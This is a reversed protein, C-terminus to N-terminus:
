EYILTIILQRIIYFVRSYEISLIEQSVINKLDYKNFFDCFYYIFCEQIENYFPQSKENILKFTTDQNQFNNELYSHRFHIYLDDLFKTIFYWSLILEEQPIYLYNKRLDGINIYNNIHEIENFVYYLFKTEPTSTM